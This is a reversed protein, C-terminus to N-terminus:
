STPLKKLRVINTFGHRERAILRKQELAHLLRTAKVKSISLKAALKSQQMEGGHELLARVALKEETKLLPIVADYFNANSEIRPQQRITKARDSNYFLYTAAAGTLFASVILLLAESLSFYESTSTAIEQGSQLIIQIPQPTFLKDFLLILAAIMVVLSIFVGFRPM